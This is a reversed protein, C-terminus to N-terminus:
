FCKSPCPCPYIYTILLWIPWFAKTKLPPFLIKVNTEVCILFRVFIHWRESIYLSLDQGDQVGSKLAFLCNQSRLRKKPIRFASLPISNWAIQRNWILKGVASFFLFGREMIQLRALFCIISFDCTRQVMLGSDDLVNSLRVCTNPWYWYFSPCKTARPLRKTM